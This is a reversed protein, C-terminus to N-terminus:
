ATFNIKVDEGAALMPEAALATIGANAKMMLRAAILCLSDTKLFSSM